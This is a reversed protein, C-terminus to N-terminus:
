KRAEYKRKNETELEKIKRQRELQEHDLDQFNNSMSAVIMARRAAQLLSLFLTCQMHGSTKFIIMIDSIYIHIIGATAHQCPDKYIFFSLYFKFFFVAFTHNYLM